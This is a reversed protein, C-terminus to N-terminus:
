NAGRRRSLAGAVVHALVAALLPLVVLLGVRWTWGRSLVEGAREVDESYVRVQARENDSCHLEGPAAVQPTGRWALDGYERAYTLRVTEWAGDAGRVSCQTLTGAESRDATLLLEGGDWDLFEMGFRQEEGTDQYAVSEQSRVARLTDRGFVTPVYVLFLQYVLVGVSVAVMALTFWIAYKARPTTTTM